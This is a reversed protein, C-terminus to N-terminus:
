ESITKRGPMGPISAIKTYSWGWTFHLKLFSDVIAPKTPSHKRVIQQVGPAAGPVAAGPVNAAINLFLRSFSM